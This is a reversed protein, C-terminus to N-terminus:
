GEDKGYSIITGAENMYYVVNIEESSSDTLRKPTEEPKEEEAVKFSVSGNGGEASDRASLTNEMQTYASISERSKAIMQNSAFVMGALLLMGMSSILLAVLVEAITEGRQNNRKGTTKRTQRM